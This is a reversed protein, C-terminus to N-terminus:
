HSLMHELVNLAFKRTVTEIVSDYPFEQHFLIEGWIGSRLFANYSELHARNGPDFHERPLSFIGRRKGAKVTSLHRLAAAYKEAYKEEPTPTPIVQPLTSRSDRVDEPDMGM